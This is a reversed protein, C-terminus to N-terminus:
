ENKYEWDLCINLLKWVLCSHDPCHGIESSDKCIDNCFITFLEDRVQESKVKM